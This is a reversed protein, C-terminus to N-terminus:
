ASIRRGKEWVGEQSYTGGLGLETLDEGFLPELTGEFDWGKNGFKREGM